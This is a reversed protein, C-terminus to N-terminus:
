IMRRTKLVLVRKVGDRRVAIRHTRGPRRFLARIEDLSRAAARRGDIALLADGAEFGAVAAPSGALVVRVRREDFKPGPSSLSLGSMDFELPATPSRGHALVLRRHPYDVWVTFRELLEGGLYGDNTSDARDGEAERALACVPGILRRSGLWIGPLRRMCSMARGALLGGSTIPLVASEPEALRYHDVTPTNLALCGTAGTDVLLRAPVNRGDPLELQAQVFPTGDAVDISLTDGSLPSAATTSDFVMLTQARYNIRVVFRQFFGAGIIGRIPVGLGASLGDLPLAAPAHEMWELPGVRFTAAQLWGADLRGGTASVSTTSDASFGRERAWSEDIVTTSAGTDLIFLGSDSRVHTRLLILHNSSEFQLRALPPPGAGAPGTLTWSVVLLVAFRRFHLMIPLTVDTWPRRCCLNRAGAPQM